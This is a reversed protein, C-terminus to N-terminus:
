VKKMAGPQPELARRLRRRARFIRSEVTGIPVGTGESIERYELGHLDRLVVAVRLDEPLSQLAREIADRTLWTTEFDSSDEPDFAATEDAGSDGWVAARRWWHSRYSRGVNVAIRYLWTRVASDGRFTPLARYVRVFVEQAVDEAEEPGVITAALSVIRQEYRRVFGEFADADGGAAARILARDPDDAPL